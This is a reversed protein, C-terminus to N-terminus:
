PLTFTRAWLRSGDPNFYAFTAAPHAFGQAQLAPAIVTKFMTRLTPAMTDLHEAAQSPDVPKAFVYVYKIGNPHVPKIRVKSYAGNFSGFSSKMQRQAEAVFEDLAQDSSTGKTSDGVPAGTPTASTTESPRASTTESPGASTTGSPGASTTESPGACGSLVAVAIFVAM